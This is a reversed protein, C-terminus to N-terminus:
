PIARSIERYYTKPCVNFFFQCSSAQRVRRVLVTSVMYKSTMSMAQWSVLWNRNHSVPLQSTWFDGMHPRPLMPTLTSSTSILVTEVVWHGTWLYLMTKMLTMALSHSLLPVQSFSLCRVEYKILCITINTVIHITSHNTRSVNQDLFHFSTCVRM